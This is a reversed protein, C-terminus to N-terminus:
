KMLHKRSKNYGFNGAHRHEHVFLVGLFRNTAVRKDSHALDQQQDAQSTVPQRPSHLLSHLQLVAGLGAVHHEGHVLPAAAVKGQRDECGPLAPLKDGEYLSVRLDGPVQGGDGYGAGQALEKDEHADRLKTGQGAGDDGGCPLEESHEAGDNQKAVTEEGM